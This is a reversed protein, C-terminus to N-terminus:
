KLLIRADVPYLGSSNAIVPNIDMELIDDKYEWALKSLQVILDALADKNVAPLGRFGELLVKAKIENIAELAQEKTTPCMRFVVDKIAEVLVGGIGFLIVPGFDDDTNTGIILEIGKDVMKEVLVGEVKVNEFRHIFDKFTHKVDDPNKLDVIVAKADTKHLVDPSMLKMVIPYGFSDAANVAEEEDHALISPPINIGMEKLVLKAEHELLATRNTLRVKQIIAEIENM